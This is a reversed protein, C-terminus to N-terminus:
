SLFSPLPEEMSGELAKQLLARKLILSFPPHLSSPFILHSRAKLCLFSLLIENVYKLPTFHQTPFKLFWNKM